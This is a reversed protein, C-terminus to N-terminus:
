GATPDLVRGVFLIEGTIDDTILYLFPRDISLRVQKSLASGAMGLATAAAAETGQEDVTINAQHVATKVYLRSNTAIGSLDASDPKFLDTMGTAELPPKLDIASTAEWKPLDLTVEAQGLGDDVQSLLDNDFEAEVTAFAGSDPVILLMSANGAYRLRVAQWGDGAGYDTMLGGHMQDVTVGSRDLRAFTQQKTSKPNFQDLWNAKFYIANVLVALTAADVSGTPLLEKIRDATRAAVWDNILERAAAARTAFDVTQMGAGYDAALIRLYDAEFPFGEQGFIANTAELKLPVFETPVPRVSALALDISNRGGHWAQADSGIGLAAAMQAATQGRAGAYAMSLATSISYPSYFLNGPEATALLPYLKLAFQRDAAVVQQVSSDTPSLAPARSVESRVERIGEISPSATPQAGACAAVLVVLTALGSVLSHSSWSEPLAVSLAASKSTM